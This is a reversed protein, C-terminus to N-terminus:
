APRHIMRALFNCITQQRMLLHPNGAPLAAIQARLAPLDAGIFFAARPAEYILRQVVSDAPCHITTQMIQSLDICSAFPFLCAVRIQHSRVLQELCLDVPLAMGATAHDQLLRHLRAASAANVVYSAIGAHFVGELVTLAGDRRFTDHLALFRELLAPEFPILM